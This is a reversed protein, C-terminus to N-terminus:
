WSEPYFPWPETFVKALKWTQDSRFVHGAETLTKWLPHPPKVEQWPHAKYSHSDVLSRVKRRREIDEKGM